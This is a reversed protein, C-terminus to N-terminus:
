VLSHLFLLFIDLFRLMDKKFVLNLICIIFTVSAFSVSTYGVIM